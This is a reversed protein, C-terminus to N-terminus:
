PGAVEPIELKVSTGEGEVSDIAMTGNLKVLTEKVIYLGLGSGAGEDTARFFMKGLNPIHEKSIGRGNDEVWVQARRNRISAKVRIVPDRGNKYRVANSFINNFITKLRWKDCYFVKDQDVTVIKEFNFEKLNSHSLQEFTEEILDSFQVPERKVELRSNRSQDLIERIFYDQQRASKEMMDIYVGSNKPTDKRALNILGLISSIPARLDHSVSYAFNDLEMNRKVLEKNSQELKDQAEIRKNIEDKLAKTRQQITSELNENFQKLEDQAKQREEVASALVLTSVAMVSIYIQLLQTTEKLFGDVVFPGTELGTFYIAALSVVLIGGTAAVINFRFALWLLFPLVVFPLANPAVASLAELSFLFYIAVGALGFAALEGLSYLSLKVEKLRSVSMILPTFLFLGIVNSAWLQWLLTTPKAFLAAHTLTLASVAVASSILSIVLAVVVFQFAYLTTSFPFAGKVTKRILYEGALAEMVSGTAIMAGALILLQVSPVTSFWYSKVSILLSGIAIGPWVGRGLLIVMALALGAPPWFTLVGGEGVALYHSLEATLYYGIAVVLIRFDLSKGVIRNKM